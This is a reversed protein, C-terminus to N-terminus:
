SLMIVHKQRHTFPPIEDEQINRMTSHYKTVWTQLYGIPRNKLSWPTVRQFNYPHLIGFCRYSVDLWRQRVVWFLTSKLKLWRKRHNNQFASSINNSSMWLCVESLELLQVGHKSCCNLCTNNFYVFVQISSELKKKTKTLSVFYKPFINQIRVLCFFLLYRSILTM